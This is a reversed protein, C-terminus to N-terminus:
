RIWDRQSRRTWWNGWEYTCREDSSKRGRWYSAVLVFVYM